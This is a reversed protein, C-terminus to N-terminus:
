MLGLFFSVLKQLLEKGEGLPLLHRLRINWRPSAVSQQFHRRIGHIKGPDEFHSEVARILLFSAHAVWTM